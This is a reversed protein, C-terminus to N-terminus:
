LRLRQYQASSLLCHSLKSRLTGSPLPSCLFISPVSQSTIQPAGTVTATLPYTFTFFSPTKVDGWGCLPRLVFASSLWKILTLATLAGSVSCYYIWRILLLRKGVNCFQTIDYIYNMTGWVMWQTNCFYNQSFQESRGGSFVVRRCALHAGTCFWSITVVVM